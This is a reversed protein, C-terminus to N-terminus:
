EVIEFSTAEGDRFNSAARESREAVQEWGYRCPFLTLSPQTKEILSSNKVPEPNGKMFEGLALNYQEIVEGFDNVASM